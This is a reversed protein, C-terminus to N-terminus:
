ANYFPLWYYTGNVNIRLKGAYTGVATTSIPNTNDAASTSVFEIFEESVDAQDLLLVPKTGTTTSQDIHLQGTPATTGIGVNGTNLVTVKTDLTGATAVDIVFKGTNDAGNRVGAIRAMNQISNATDDIGLVFGSGFGDVMNNTSKHVLRMSSAVTNTTTSSFVSELQFAPATTGIGVLGASTIRVWETSNTLFAMDQEVENAIRTTSAKRIQLYGIRAGDSDHYSTFPASVSSVFALNGVTGSLAVTSDGTILSQTRTTGNITLLNSPSTTGIGVLGGGTITARVLNGTSLYLPEATTETGLWMSTANARAVIRFMGALNISDVTGSYTSSFTDFIASEGTDNRLSFRSLASTGNSSNRFYLADFATNTSADVRLGGTFAGVGIM